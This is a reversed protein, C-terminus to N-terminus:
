SERRIKGVGDFVFLAGKKGAPPEIPRPSALFVQGFRSAIEIFRKTNDPDLEAFCDDLLLCIKTKTRCYLIDSAALITAISAARAQGWSGFRSMKEDNKKFDIDDRHPGLTTEGGDLDRKRRAALRKLLAKSIEGAGMDEIDITSKYVISLEGGEGATMERYIGASKESLMNVFRNRIEMITGAEPTISEDMAEILVHGGAISGNRVGKLAANREALLKKYRRLSETYTRDMQCLISDMMRRRVIPSGKILDIEPPGVATMPFVGLLRSLKPLRKEAIVVEKKGSRNIKVSVDQKRNVGKGHVFAYQEGETIIDKNRESWPSGGLGVHSVAELLSTKGVGNPGIIRNFDPEFDLKIESYARFNLIHLWLIV